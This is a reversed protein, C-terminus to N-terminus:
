FRQQFRCNILVEVLELDIHESINQRNWLFQSPPDAEAMVLDAM